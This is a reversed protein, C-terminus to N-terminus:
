SKQNKNNYLYHLVFSKFSNILSLIYDTPHKAMPVVSSSCQLM